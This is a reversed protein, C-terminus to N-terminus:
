HFAPPKRVPRPGHSVALGACVIFFQVDFSMSHACAFLPSPNYRPATLGQNSHTTSLQVATDSYQLGGGACVCDFMHLDPHITNQCSSSVSCDLSVTCGSAPWDFMEM